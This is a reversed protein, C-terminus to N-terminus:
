SIQRRAQSGSLGPNIAINKGSAYGQRVASQGMGINIARGRTTSGFRQKVETDLAQANVVVLAMTEGDQSQESAKLREIIAKVAGLRFGGKFTRVTQRTYPYAVQHAEWGQDALRDIARTLYAYLYEVVEINHKRGVLYVVRKQSNWIVQCLNTRALITYLGLKWNTNPFDPRDYWTYESKKATVQELSLNYKMLLETAKEAALAAENPNSSTSLALLNRIKNIIKETEM